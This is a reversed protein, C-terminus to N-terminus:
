CNHRAAGKVVIPERNLVSVTARRERVARQRGKVVIPERNLVSVRARLNPNTLLPDVKVVIPERNLVSVSNREYAIRDM